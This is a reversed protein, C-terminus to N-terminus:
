NGARRGKQSVPNLPNFKGSGPAGLVAIYGGPLKEIAGNLALATDRIERYTREVVPFRHINRYEFRDTWNLRQLLQAATLETIHQPDAVTAFLESAICDVDDEVFEQDLSSGGQSCYELM